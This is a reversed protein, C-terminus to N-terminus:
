ALGLTDGLRRLVPSTTILRSQRLALGRARARELVLGPLPPRCWCEPPGGAHPCVANEVDAPPVVGGERWGVLVRPWDPHQALAEALGDAWRGDAHLLELGLFLAPRGPPEPRRVFPVRSLTTFGEDDGLPEVARLTSFLARPSLADPTKGRKLETPSLLRGHVDLMRGVINVQADEPSIDHWVGHVPVGHRRALQLVAGRQARTVYTNDLVVRSTGAVLMAELKRHLQELTGGETDRNLRAWGDSVLAAVASSKGAGQVGMLLRVERPGGPRPAPAPAEAERLVRLAAARRASRVTEVRRAGPLVVVQEHLSLLSALAWEHPTCGAERAREVLWAQRALQAHRKPGGLPSHCLVPVGAELARQVVGGRIATDDLLSVALQVAGLTTLALAEDLQARTVNSLGIERVLGEDRLEMLARVSTALPTKPDVAHLLYLDIPRGLAERS